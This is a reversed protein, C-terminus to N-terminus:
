EVTEIGEPIQIGFEMALRRNIVGHHDNLTPYTPTLEHIHKGRLVAAALKGASKGVAHYDVGFSALALGDKVAQKEANFVPIHMKRAEAAIAPLTPQIPGSTGVYILDAKNKFEQMRIPVDRTQEVPIALVDMGFKEASKKMMKVLAIDNSEATAYLLGVTQTHPLISRAFQLFAQLDQMESSGTINGSSQYKEEILGAEVPDTIATYILPTHHIKNKAVQAVPTTMVLMLEPNKAHLSAIMQPILASDFGVDSNEYHVTKNEIFGEQQMQAKFGSITANLSAHPGYNAIAVIPLNAQNKHPMLAIATIMIIVIISIFTLTNKM